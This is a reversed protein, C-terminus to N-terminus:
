ATSRNISCVSLVSKNDAGTMLTFEEANLFEHDTSGLQTFGYM